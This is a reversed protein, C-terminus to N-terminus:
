LNGMGERAASHEMGLMTEYAAIDKEREPAVLRLVAVAFSAPALGPATVLNGGRAAVPANQYHGAGAYAPAKARLFAPDNSTHPRADLLGARAAALTGACIAGIALGAADARRLLDTVVPDEAEIWRASGIVLLLDVEAPDVADFALDAAARVGGISTATLGGPTAIRVEFGFYERLAALVFGSEWDAWGQNFLAVCRKM